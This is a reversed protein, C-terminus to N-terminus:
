AARIMALFQEVEIKLHNSESALSQASALVQASAIGTQNAGRNAETIDTVIRSTGQAAQLANRSIERTSADQENVAAAIMSTIEAIRAVTTGVENITAVSEKTATQMGAVQVRIEEAATATEGALAKVEQAVVAFGKGAQGARAAEITANLALLNTQEAVATILKIVDSIRTAARSLEAIRADTKEAQTVAVGAIRSSELVQRAIEAVSLALEESAAAVSNVNAFAGESATAVMTSLDRTTGAMKTLTTAASELETSASFVFEVVGGVTAEFQDALKHMEARRMAGSRAEIKKHENERRIREVANQKFIHVAKAMAGIEDRRDRSPVETDTDGAALKTMAVTMGAVPGVISRGIVLAILGGLLLALAATVAQTAITTGIKRDTSVKTSEFDMLLSAEAIDIRELMEALQPAMDNFFINNSNILNSSLRDFAQQYAVLSARIPSIRSRIDDSPAGEDLLAITILMKEVSTNFTASWKPDQTAQFQWNAVRIQLLAADVNARDAAISFEVNQRATEFLINTNKTLYDGVIVLESRAADINRTADVVAGLRKQFLTIDTELAMYTKRREESITAIAAARLLEIATAAAESGRNMSELDGRFKYSLAARQMVGFERSIQFLRRNGASLASMKDLAVTTWNLQWIAFLALALGFAVLLGFGGYLRGKIGLDLKM